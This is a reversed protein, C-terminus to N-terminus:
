EEELCKLCWDTLDPREKQNKLNGCRLCREGRLFEEKVKKVAKRKENKIIKEFEALLKSHFDGDVFTSLAIAVKMKWDTKKM